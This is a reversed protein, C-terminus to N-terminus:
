PGGTWLTEDNFAIVEHELAGPIMAAFRGTGIPLGEWYKEAPTDYRWQMPVQNVQIAEEQTCSYFTISACLALLIFVNNRM